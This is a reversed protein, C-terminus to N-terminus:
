DEKDFESEIQLNIKDGVLPELNSIGYDSRDFSGCASFGMVHSGDVPNTGAGILVTDLVVTHTQGHLTFDGTIRAHGQGLGEIRTAHFTARPYKLTDFWNEGGLTEDLERDNTDISSATITVDLTSQDPADPSWNFEGETHDFRGTFWSFGLHMIKFTVSTHRPDLTYTGAPM